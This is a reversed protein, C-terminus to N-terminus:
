SQGTLGTKRELDPKFQPFPRRVLALCVSPSLAPNMRLLLSGVESHLCDVLHCSGANPTDAIKFVGAIPAMAASVRLAISPRFHAFRRHGKTSAIREAIHNRTLKECKRFRENGQGMLAIIEDPTLKDRQAETLM